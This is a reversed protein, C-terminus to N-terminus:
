KRAKGIVYIESSSKRSAPPSYRRVSRFAARVEALFEETDSGQFTKCIINGGPHLTEMAFELAMRALYISNAQDVDYNGSINPSMDSIVVGVSEKGYGRIKEMVLAMTEKTTMDGRIFTCGEMEATPQLDVGVVVGEAGVIELAVQSWGGPSAGLDVVVDGKRIIGYKENIQKLKYAARSRYNEKKALRHYPDRAHEQAWRKSM